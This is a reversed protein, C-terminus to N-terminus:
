CTAPNMAAQNLTAQNMVNALLYEMAPMPGPHQSPHVEPPRDWQTCNQHMKNHAKLSNSHRFKKDCFECPYPYANEHILRHRRLNRHDTFRADCESCAYPKEGTHIYRHSKLSGLFNFKAGCYDCLYQRKEYCSRQHSRLGNVQAFDRGCKECKYHKEPGHIEAHKEVQSPTAARFLCGPYTCIFPKKQGHLSLMHDRYPRQQKFSVDCYGCRYTVGTHSRHHRTLHEQREYKCGCINCEFMKITDHQLLHRQYTDNREFKRTCKECVKTGKAKRRGKKSPNRERRAVGEKPPRGRKKKEGAPIVRQPKAKRGRRKKAPVVEEAEDDLVEEKIETLLGNDTGKYDSYDEIDTKEDDTDDPDSKEPEDKIDDDLEDDDDLDDEHDDDLDDEHDDGNESSMDSDAVDDPDSAESLVDEESLEVEDIDSDNDSGEVDSEKNIEQNSIPPVTIKLKIPGSNSNTHNASATNNTEVTSNVSHNADAHTQLPPSMKVVGHSVSSPTPPSDMHDSVTGNRPAEMHSNSELYNSRRPVNNANMNLRCSASSMPPLGHVNQNPTDPPEPMEMKPQINTFDNQNPMQM